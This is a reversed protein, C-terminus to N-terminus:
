LAIISQVAYAGVTMIASIIFIVFYASFANLRENDLLSSIRGNNFVLLAAALFPVCVFNAREGTSALSRIVAAIYILVVELSYILGGKYTYLRKVTLLIFTFIFFPIYLKDGTTIDFVMFAGVAASILLMFWGLLSKVLNSREDENDASCWLLAIKGILSEKKTEEGDFDEDSNEDDPEFEEEEFDEIEEEEESEAEESATGSNEFPKQETLNRGIPQYASSGYNQSSEFDSKDLTQITDWLVAVSNVSEVAQESTMGIDKMLANVAATLFKESKDPYAVAKEINKMASCEYMAALRKRERRSKPVLDSMLALTKEPESFIDVEMDWMVSYLANYFSDSAM